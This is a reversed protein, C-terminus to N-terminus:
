HSSNVQARSSIIVRMQISPSIWCRRGFSCPPTPHTWSNIMHLAGLPKQFDEAAQAIRTYVPSATGCIQPPVAMLCSLCSVSCVYVVASQIYPLMCDLIKYRLPITRPNLLEKCLGCWSLATQQTPSSLPSQASTFQQTTSHGNQM